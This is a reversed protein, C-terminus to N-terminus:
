FYKNKEEKKAFNKGWFQKAKTKRLLKRMIKRVVHKKTQVVPM